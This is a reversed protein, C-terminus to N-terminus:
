SKILLQMVHSVLCVETCTDQCVVNLQHGACHFYLAKPNESIMKQQLGNTKGAMSSSGDYWQGCFCSIDLGLRLLADKISCFLTNSDTRHTEFFRLFAENSELFSKCHPICISVQEWNSIDCM